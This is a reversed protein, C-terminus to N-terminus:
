SVCLRVKIWKKLRYSQSEFPLYLIFAVIHSLVIGLLFISVSHMNLFGAKNAGFHLMLLLVSWHTLYLTYSFKAMKTGFKDLWCALKTQPEAHIVNVIFLCVSLGFCITVADATLSDTAIDLQSAINHLNLLAFVMMGGSAITIAFVNCKKIRDQSALAGLFWLFTYTVSLRSLIVMSISLCAFSLLKGKTSKVTVIAAASGAIVYFWVEYALSWLPGALSPCAIGQLSIFNLVYHSVPVSVGMITNSIAIIILAALLPLQIRIVRDITYSLINFAGNKLKNIIGGGVLYGSLVFFVLVSSHGLSTLVYSVQMIIGQQSSPLQDYNVFLDARFHGILVLLAAIYRMLDLWPLSAKTIANM